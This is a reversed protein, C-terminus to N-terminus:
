GSMPIGLWGGVALFYSRLGHLPLSLFRLLSHGDTRGPAGTGGKGGRRVQREEKPGCAKPDKKGLDQRLAQIFDMEKLYALAITAWRQPCAPAFAGSRGTEVGRNGAADSCVSSGLLRGLCVAGPM